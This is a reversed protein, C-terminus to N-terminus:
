ELCSPTPPTLTPFLIPLLLGPSATCRLLSLVNTKTYALNQKRIIGDQKQQVRPYQTSMLFSGGEEFFIVTDLLVPSQEPSQTILGLMFKFSLSFAFLM